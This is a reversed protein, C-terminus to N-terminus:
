KSPGLAVQKLVQYAKELAPNHPRAFAIQGAPGFLTYAWESLLMHRSYVANPVYLSSEQTPYQKAQQAVQTLWSEPIEAEQLMQILTSFHPLNKKQHFYFSQFWKRYLWNEPLEQLRVPYSIIYDPKIGQEGYVMRKQYKTYFPKTRTLQATDPLSEYYTARDINKYNRQISRGSPLYYRGTTIRIADKAPLDFQEQVLGKGFSPRGIVIGRDYDQMIGALIESASASEEDILVAVKGSEFLGDSNAMIAERKQQYQTYFLTDKGGILEDAIQAVADMYGGPNGRLDIILQKMGAQKLEILANHFETATPESFTEIGIYGCTADLMTFANLTSRAILEPLIRMTETKGDPHKILMSLPIAKDRILHKKLIADVSAPHTLWDNEIRLLQDGPELGVNAAPSGPIIHSIHLTDQWTYYVLGMGYFQGNLADNMAQLEHAPIYVTHPDLHSLIGDIAFSELSDSSLSDVYYAPLLAFIASLSPASTPYSKTTQPSKKGFYFGIFLGLALGLAAVWPLIYQRFRPRPTM